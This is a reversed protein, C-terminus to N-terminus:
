VIAERVKVVQIYTRFRYTMDVGILSASCFAGNMVAYLKDDKKYEKIMSVRNFIYLMWVTSSKYVRSASSNSNTQAGGGDKFIALLTGMGGLEAADTDSVRPFRMDAYGEISCQYIGDEPITIYKSGITLMNDPNCDISSIIPAWSSSDNYADGVTVDSPMNAYGSCVRAKLPPTVEGDGGSVAVQTDPDGAPNNLGLPAPLEEEVDAPTISTANTIIKSLYYTTRVLQGTESLWEEDIGMIWYDDDIDYTASTFNIKTLLDHAFQVTPRGEVQIVLSERDGDLWPWLTGMFSNAYNRDQLWPSDLTFKRDYPAPTAYHSFKEIVDKWRRGRIELKTLYGASSSYFGIRGGM